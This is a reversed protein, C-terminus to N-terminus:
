DRPMTFQNLEPAIDYQPLDKRLISYTTHAAAVKSRQALNAQERPTVGRGQMRGLRAM